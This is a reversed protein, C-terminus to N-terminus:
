FINSIAEKLIQKAQMENVDRFNLNSREPTILQGSILEVDINKLNEYIDLKSFLEKRLRFLTEHLIEISPYFLSDSLKKLRGDDKKSNFLLVEPLVFSSAIGHPIKYISTLPYSISHCIGTKTRSIALSALISALQMNKLFFDKKESNVYGRISKISLDISQTAFNISLPDAYKNWISEFSHSLTDLGSSVSVSYELSKLLKHDYIALRPLLLNNQFSIKQNLRYDWVTAFPTLEAGSGATSPFVYLPINSQFRLKNFDSLIEIKNKRDLIISLIKATDIVSGGGISIILESNKPFFQNQFKELDELSPERKVEDLVSVQHYKLKNKISNIIGRNTFSKSTLVLIKKFPLERSLFNFLDEFIIEVDCLPKKKDM